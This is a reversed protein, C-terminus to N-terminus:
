LCIPFIMISIRQKVKQKSKKIIYIITQIVPLIFIFQLKSATNSINGNFQWQIAVTEPM